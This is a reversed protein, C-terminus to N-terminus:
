QLVRTCNDTVYVEYGEFTYDIRNAYKRWVRKTHNTLWHELSKALPKRSVPMVFWTCQKTNEYQRLKESWDVHNNHVNGLVPDLPFEEVSPDLRSYRELGGVASYIRDGPQYRKKLVNVINRVDLSKHGTYYSVFEPAMATAIVLILTYSPLLYDSLASRHREIIVGALLFALPVSHFLYDPRVSMFKAATALTVLPLILGIACFLALRNEKFFLYILGLFATVAIPVQLYKITQFIFGFTGYGWQQGSSQWGVAIKVLFPSAILAAIVGIVVYIKAIKTSLPKEKPPGTFITLLAFLGCSAFILIATAHFSVAILGAIISVVLKRISDTLLAQYFCLYAIFGFLFVGSYFRAAQSYFLQWSSILILLSAFLAANRGIISKSFAYFLPISISGMIFAPLRASFESEGFLSYCLNVLAYYAPNILSTARQESFLFTFYEDGKLSWDGLGYGRTLVALTLLVLFSFLDKRDVSPRIM